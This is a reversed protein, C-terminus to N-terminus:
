EKDKEDVSGGGDEEENAAIELEMQESEVQDDISMLMKHKEGPAMGSHPAIGKPVEPAKGGPPGKSNLAEEEMEVENAVPIMAQAGHDDGAIPAAQVGDEKLMPTFFEKSSQGAADESMHLKWGLMVAIVVVVILLVVCIWVAAISGNDPNTVTKTHKYGKMECKDGTVGDECLCGGTGTNKKQENHKNSCCTCGCCTCGTSPKSSVHDTLHKGQVCLM